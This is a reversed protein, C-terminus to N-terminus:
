GTTPSSSSSRPASCEVYRAAYAPAPHAFGVRLGHLEEGLLFRAITCFSTMLGEGAFRGLPGMPFSEVARMQLDDGQEVLELEYALGLVRYYKMAFQLARGLNASSLM